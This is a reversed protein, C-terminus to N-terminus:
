IKKYRKGGGFSTQVRNHVQKNKHYDTMKEIVYGLMMGIIVVSIVGLM